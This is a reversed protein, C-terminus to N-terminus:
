VGPNATPPPVPLEFQREALALARRFSRRNEATEQYAERAMKLIKQADARQEPANGLRKSFVYELDEGETVQYFHIHIEKQRGLGALVTDGSVQSINLVTGASLAEGDEPYVTFALRVVPGHFTKYFELRRVISVSGRIRDLGQAPAAVVLHAQPPRMSARGQASIIRAQVGNDHVAAALSRRVREPLQLGQSIDPM